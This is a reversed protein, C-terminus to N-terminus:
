VCEDPVVPGLFNLEDHLAWRHSTFIFSRLVTRTRCEDLKQSVKASTAVSADFILASLENRKAEDRCAYARQAVGSIPVRSLALPLIAEPQYTEHAYRAVRRVTGVTGLTCREVTARDCM